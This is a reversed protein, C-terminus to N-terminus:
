KAHILNLLQDSASAKSVYGAVGCRSADSRLAADEYTSLMVIRTSPSKDMIQRAAELGDLEPMKVDMVIVDPHLEEALRVAEYGNEAEGVVNIERDTELLARLGQRVVPFDDVILVSM